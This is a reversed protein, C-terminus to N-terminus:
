GEEENTHLATLCCGDCSKTKRPRLGTKHNYCGSCLGKRLPKTEKGCCSCPLRGVYEVNKQRPKNAHLAELRGDVQMHCSRCLPECREIEQKLRDLTYRGQTIFFTVRTWPKQPHEEHHWDIPGSSGCRTCRIDKMFDDFWERLEATRATQAQTKM